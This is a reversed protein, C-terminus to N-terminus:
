FNPMCVISGLIIVECRNARIIFDARSMIRFSLPSLLSMDMESDLGSYFDHEIIEEGNTSYAFKVGLISAYEKAQQLGDSASKNISKAEIIALPFNRRYCLIYDARKQRSRKIKDGIIIIRGDTFTKQEFIQNDVWGAEYIQPTILRRCTDAESPPM